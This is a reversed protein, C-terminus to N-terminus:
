ACAGGRAIDTWVRVVSCFNCSLNVCFFIEFACWFYWNEFSSYFVGYLCCSFLLADSLGAKFTGAARMGQLEQTLDFAM